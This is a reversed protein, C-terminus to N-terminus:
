KRKKKKNSQETVIDNWQKMDTVFAKNEKAKKETNTQLQNLDNAMISVKFADKINFHTSMDGASTVRMCHLLTGDSALCRFGVYRDYVLGQGRHCEGKAVEVFEKSEDQELKCIITSIEKM